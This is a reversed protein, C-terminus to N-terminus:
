ASAAASANSIRQRDKFISFLQALCGHSFAPGHCSNQLLCSTSTANSFSESRHATLDVLLNEGHPSLPYRGRDGASPVSPLADGALVMAELHTFGFELGSSHKVLNGTRCRRAAFEM